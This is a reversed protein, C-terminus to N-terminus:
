VVKVDTLTDVIRRSTRGDGYIDVSKAMSFYHDRDSLLRLVEAVINKQSTGVLVSVGLDLSEIRETVERMVLVPKGLFAAEEQIGGSDTLILYSHQALWVLMPYDVPELLHINEINGLLQHVPVRVEPNLHVPFIVDIDHSGAIDRLALCIQQFPAGFSERRHGTVLIVPKEFTVGNIRKRFEQELRLEKIKASTIFLADIVSNGVVHITDDQVGEDILNQKARVTPAFHLDALRTSLVRNMEEPFPAWKNHSRLGAEVHAVRVRHYFAALAAAFSTTTDGQVLIWDPQYSEIVNTLGALVKATVESLTQRETMIKLDFSVPLGFFSIVHDVMERHQGSLCVAVSFRSDEQLEKIIPALKIAEPRTGFVILIKM